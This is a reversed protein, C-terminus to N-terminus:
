IGFCHGTCGRSIDSEREWRTGNPKCKACREAESFPQSVGPCVWAGAVAPRLEDELHSWQRCLEAQHAAGRAIAEVDNRVLAPTSAELSEALNRVLALRQEILLSLEPLSIDRDTM